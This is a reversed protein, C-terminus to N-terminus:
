DRKSFTRIKGEKKISVRGLSCGPVLSHVGSRAVIVALALVTGYRGRTTARCHCSNVSANVWFIQGDRGCPYGSM